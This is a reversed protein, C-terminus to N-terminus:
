QKHGRGLMRQRDSRISCCLESYGAIRSDVVASFLVFGPHVGRPNFYRHRKLTSLAACRIGNGCTEALSGDSNIISLRDAFVQERDSIHMVLLGDAAVGSGDRACLTPAQRVLSDFIVDDDGLLWTLIFDNKAGHWKEFKLIM